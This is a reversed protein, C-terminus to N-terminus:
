EPRETPRSRAYGSPNGSTSSCGLKHKERLKYAKRSDKWWNEAWWGCRCAATWWLKLGERQGVPVDLLTVPLQKM